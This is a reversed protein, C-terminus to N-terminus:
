GGFSVVESADLLDQPFYGLNTTTVVTQTGEQVFRTVAARRDADLESMVDDLLLLPRQGRIQEALMVEALKWALVVSRQQGQSGFHRVDRGGISFAIDDRHPGLLTQQRRLDDPRSVRLMGAFLDMLQERDMDEVGSGLSSVYACSLKEGVCISGYVERVLAEMRHFLRLRAELVTAGGLAVSADWADLLSLDPNEDKLLRNRQEVSRQYAALVRAYGANAQRAFDDLEDRRASAGQKVLSLDDPCFLVSMLDAPLSSPRAPKGNREFSRKNGRVTCSVDIVRGDGVIRADARASDAGDRVLQAPRPRRFSMGSTLLQLAEVTNTKGVANPGHLVTMGPSFLVQRREFCRWDVMDLTCVCLM